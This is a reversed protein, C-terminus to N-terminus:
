RSEDPSERIQVMREALRHGFERAAEESPRRPVRNRVHSERDDVQWDSRDAAVENGALLERRCKALRQARCNACGKARPSPM